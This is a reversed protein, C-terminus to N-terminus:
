SDTLQLLKEIDRACSAIDNQLELAERNRTTRAKSPRPDATSEADLEELRAQKRKIALALEEFIEREEANLGDEGRRRREAAPNPLAKPLSAAMPVHGMAGKPMARGGCYRFKDQLNRKEVSSDRGKPLSPVQPRSLEMELRIQHGPKRGGYLPERWNRPDEPDPTARSPRPLRVSARQPCPKRPAVQPEWPRSPSQLRPYAVKSAMESAGGRSAYLRRLLRGSETNCGFKKWVDRSAEPVTYDGLDASAASERGSHRMPDASGDRVPQPTDGESVLDEEVEEAQGEAAAGGEAEDEVDTDVEASDEEDFMLKRGAKSPTFMGQPSEGGGGVVLAM